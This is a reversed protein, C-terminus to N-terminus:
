ANITYNQRWKSLPPLATINGIFRRIIEQGYTWLAASYILYDAHTVRVLDGDAYRLTPAQKLARADM